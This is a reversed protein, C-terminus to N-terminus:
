SSVLRHSLDTKSQQSRQASLKGLLGVLEGPLPQRVTDGYVRQLARGLSEIWIAPEGAIGRRQLVANTAVWMLVAAVVLAPVSVAALLLILWLSVIPVEGFTNSGRLRLFVSV